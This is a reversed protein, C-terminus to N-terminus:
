AQKKVRRKLYLPNKVRQLMKWLLLPVPPLLVKHPNFRPLHYCANLFKNDVTANIEWISLVLIFHLCPTQEQAPPPVLTRFSQPYCSTDPSSTLPFPNQKEPWKIFTVRSSSLLAKPYFLNNSKQKWWQLNDWSAPSPVYVHVWSPLAGCYSCWHQQSRQQGELSLVCGKLLPEAYVCSEFLYNTICTILFCQTLLCCSYKDSSLCNQALGHGTPWASVSCLSCCGRTM